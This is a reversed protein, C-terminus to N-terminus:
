ADTITRLGLQAAVTATVIGAGVLFLWIAMFVAVFGVFVGAMPRATAFSVVYGILLGVFSVVFAFSAAKAIWLAASEVRDYPSVGPDAAEAVDEDMADVIVRASLARRVDGALVTDSVEDGAVPRFAEALGVDDMEMLRMTPTRGSRVWARDIGIALELAVLDKDGILDRGREFASYRWADVGCVHAADALSCRQDLRARRLRAGTEAHPYVQAFPNLVDDRLLAAVIVGSLGAYM